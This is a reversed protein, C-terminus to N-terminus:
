PAAEPVPLGDAALVRVRTSITALQPQGCGIFRDERSIPSHGFHDLERGIDSGTDLLLVKFVLTCPQDRQKGLMRVIRQHQRIVLATHQKRIVRHVPQKAVRRLLQEALREHLQEVAQLGLDRRQALHKFVQVGPVGVATFFQKVALMFLGQQAGQPDVRNNIPVTRETVDDAHDVVEGIGLNMFHQLALRQLRHRTLCRQGFHHRQDAVFDLANRGLHNGRNQTDILVAHQARQGAWAQRLAVRARQVTHHNARVYAGTARSGKDTRRYVHTINFVVREPRGIFVQWQGQSQAGAPRCRDFGACALHNTGEGEIIPFHAVGTLKVLTQHLDTGVQAGQGQLAIARAQLDTLQREVVAEGPQGVAIQQQGISVLRNGAGLAVLLRQRDQEDVKVAELLDIIGETMWRAIVQQAQDGLAQAAVGVVALDDPAPRAILEDDDEVGTGGGLSDVGYLAQLCQNGHGTVDTTNGQHRGGANADALVRIVTLIHFGQQMTGVKGHVLRFGVPTTAETEEAVVHVLKSLFAEGEFDRQAIGQLPLAQLQVVLWQHVQLRAGQQTNLRQCAPMVRDKAM